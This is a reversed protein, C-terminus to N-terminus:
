TSDDSGKEERGKKERERKNNIGKGIGNGKKRVQNAKRETQAKGGERGRRGM